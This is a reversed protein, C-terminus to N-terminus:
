STLNYRPAGKACPAPPPLSGGRGSRPAPCAQSVEASAAVAEETRWAFRCGLYLHDPDAAKLRDRVTKFYTRALEKVFVGLDAKFAATWAAQGAAPKWPAELAQWGSLNTKWADNLQSIDAYKKELQDLIARKAPSTAVPLSLAGMGLGYRGSEEGFAGWSLENDVFYGLCWPDGKVRSVVGQLSSQVNDAFRPDFPDHMKGWYDSGSGVRAHNGSVTVTAVYAVQGNREIRPDSWNGITNFGWSKLRNLTTERWRALFDPGYTRELNAAYFNFTRGEKVPGSHIRRVTGFHRALPEGPRPLGTFMSERGTLFTVRVAGPTGSILDVKASHAALSRLDLGATRVEPGPSGAWGITTGLLTWTAATILFQRSM